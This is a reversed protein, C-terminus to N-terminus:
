YILTILIRTIGHVWFLGAVLPKPDNNSLEKELETKVTESIRDGTKSYAYAVGNTTNSREIYGGCAFKYFNNCPNVNMDMDNLVREAVSPPGSESKKENENSNSNEFRRFHNEFQISNGSDVLTMFYPM